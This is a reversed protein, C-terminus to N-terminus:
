KWSVKIQKRQVEEKKMLQTTSKMMLNWAIALLYTVGTSKEIV